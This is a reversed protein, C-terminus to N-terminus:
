IPHHVLIECYSSDLVVMQPFADAVVPLHERGDNSYIIAAVDATSDTENRRFLMQVIPAFVILFHAVRHDVARARSEGFQHCTHFIQLSTELVPFLRYFVVTPWKAEFVYPLSAIM